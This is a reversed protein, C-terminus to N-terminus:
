DDLSDYYDQKENRLRSIMKRFKEPDEIADDIM